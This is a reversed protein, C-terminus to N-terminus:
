HKAHHKDERQLETYLPIEFRKTFYHFISILPFYSLTVLTLAIVFHFFFELLHGNLFYAANNLLLYLPLLLISSLFIPVVQMFLQSCDGKHRWFLAAPYILLFVLFSHGPILSEHVSAVLPLLFLSTSWKLYVSLYFFSAFSLPFLIFFSSFLVEIYFTFFLSLFVFLAKM